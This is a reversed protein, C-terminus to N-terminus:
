YKICLECVLKKLDNLVKRNWIRGNPDDIYIKDHSNFEDFLDLSRNGRITYNNDGTMVIDDKTDDLYDGDTHMMLEKTEDNKYYYYHNTELVLYEPKYKDFYDLVEKYDKDFVIYFTYYSCNPHGSCSYITKLGAKNLQYIEWAINEDVEIVYEKHIDTCPNIAKLTYEENDDTCSDSLVKVVAEEGIGLIGFDGVHHGVAGCKLCMLM